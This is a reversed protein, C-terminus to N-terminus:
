SRADDSSYFARDYVAGVSSPLYRLTVTSSNSAGQGNSMTVALSQIADVNGRVNFTITATFLSGFTQSATSQYWVNFPGNVPLSATTTDLKLDKNTPDVYPTFTFDMSNVSRSPSYGTIAISFTSASRNIVQLSTIRPAAARVQINTAPAAGTILNIGGADTAFTASLTINGAVTGTQFRIQSDSVGFVANRSNAPVVFNVTRGGSAFVIAPDDSFVDATSAFVLTLKGTLQVPYANDLSIGVGIQQAANVATGAGTFSVAPLPPPADGAGSLSFTQSDIKLTGTTQGLVIPAFSIGFSITTGENIRVPLAPVNTLAFVNNAPGTVSISNIFAATNGTNSIQVQASSTTGVQTLRFIVTGNSAL